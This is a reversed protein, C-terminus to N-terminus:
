RDSGRRLEDWIAKAEQQHAQLTPLRQAALERLKADRGREAQKAFLDISAQHDEMMVQMYRRDFEVGSLKDLQQVERRLSASERKFPPGEDGLLRENLAMLERNMSSHDEIMREAFAKVKSNEIKPLARQSLQVEKAGRDIALQLFQRDSRTADMASAIRPEDTRELAPEQAFLAPCVLLAIVPALSPLARM